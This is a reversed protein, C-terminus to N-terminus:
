KNRCASRDKSERTVSKQGTSPNKKRIAALRSWPNNVPKPKGVVQGSKPSNLPNHKGVVEGSRPVTRQIVSGALSHEGLGGGAEPSHYLCEVATFVVRM